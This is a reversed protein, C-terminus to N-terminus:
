FMHLNEFAVKALLSIYFEYFERKLCGFRFRLIGVSYFCNEFAYMDKNIRIDFYINAGRFDACAALASCEMEVVACGESKRYAVKEKTERFFGDTSWTIVEQYKMSHELITEEIAKRAKESIEVFRSPPAYHYSTGEDRLAKNPVLFTSEPFKELAGCSGASIVERVGYGILWDLIQTAAAAGVPAQCLVIDEGKYKTIYIPYHKTASEFTSVQKTDSKSAYEDIYAGLFAFVCKKPLNLGLNEHTPNLVATQETDFELIPIENKIIAM